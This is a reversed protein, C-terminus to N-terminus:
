SLARTQQKMEKNNSYCLSVLCVTFIWVLRSLLLRRMQIEVTQLYIDSNAQHGFNGSMVRYMRSCYFSSSWSITYTVQM